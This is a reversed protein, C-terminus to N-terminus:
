LCRYRRWLDKWWSLVDITALSHLVLYALARKLRNSIDGDKFKEV